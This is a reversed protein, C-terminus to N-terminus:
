KPGDKKPDWPRRKKKPRKKRKSPSRKERVQTKDAMLSDTSTLSRLINEASFNIDSFQDDLEDGFNELMLETGRKQIGYIGANEWYKNFKLATELYNIVTDPHRSYAKVMEVLEMERVLEELEQEEIADRLRDWSVFMMIFSDEDGIDEPNIQRFQFLDAYSNRRTNVNSKLVDVHEWNRFLIRVQDELKANQRFFDCIIKDMYKYCPDKLITELYETDYGDFYFGVSKIEPQQRRPKIKFGSYKGISPRYPRSYSRLADENLLRKATEYLKIALRREESPHDRM